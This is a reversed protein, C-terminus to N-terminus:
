EHSAMVILGCNKDKVHKRDKPTRTTTAVVEVVVVVVDVSPPPHGQHAHNQATSMTHQTQPKPMAAIAKGQQEQRDPRLFLRFYWAAGATTGNVPGSPVCGAKWLGISVVGM